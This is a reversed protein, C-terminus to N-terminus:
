PRPGGTRPTADRFYDGARPTALLVMATAVAVVAVAITVRTLPGVWAPVAQDLLRQLRQPDPADRPARRGTVMSSGGWCVTVAGLMWTHLRARRRLNLIGLTALGAALLLLVGGAVLINVVSWSAAEVGAYAQRFAETVAGAHAMGVLGDTLVAAAAVLMLLTAVSVVAPRPSAPGPPHDM